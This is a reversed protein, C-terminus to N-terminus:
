ESKLSRIPWIKISARMIDLRVRSQLGNALKVAVDWGIVAALDGSRWRVRMGGELWLPLGMIGPAPDNPALERDLCTHYITVNVGFNENNNITYLMIEASGQCIGM